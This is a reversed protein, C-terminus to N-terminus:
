PQGNLAAQQQAKRQQQLQYWRTFDAPSLVRAIGQMRAHGLGCVQTCLISYDGPVTPTFHIHFTQGPLANQKIRLAPIAFGHIVDLARLRLDVERGAPLVLQSCVLDDRGREDAPDLGLPNGQAASILDSKTSGFAADKGPYRFYWAFQMGVVEIQMAAPDAGTYRQSSWLEQSWLALSFFLITLVILPLLELRWRSHALPQPTHQSPRRKLVLGTVLILHALLLLGFFIWLNVLLQHDLAIGHLSANPPLWWAGHTPDPTAPM